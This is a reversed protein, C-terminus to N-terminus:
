RVWVRRDYTRRYVRRYRITRRYYRVYTRTYRRTVWYGGLINELANSDLEQNMELDNITIAAMIIEQPPHTTTFEKTRKTTKSIACPTGSALPTGAGIWCVSKLVILGDLHKLFKPIIIKQAFINRHLWCCHGTLRPCYCCIFLITKMQYSIHSPSDLRSICSIRRDNKLIGRGITCKLVQGWIRPYDTPLNPTEIVGSEFAIWVFLHM